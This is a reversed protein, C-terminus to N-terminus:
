WLIIELYLCPASGDIFEVPASTLILIRAAPATALNETSLWIIALTPTPSPESSSLTRAHAPEFWSPSLIFTRQSVTSLLLHEAAFITNFRFSSCDLQWLLKRQRRYISAATVLISFEACPLHVPKLGPLVQLPLSPMNSPMRGQWLITARLGLVPSLNEQCGPM